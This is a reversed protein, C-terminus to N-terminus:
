QLGGTAPADGESKWNKFVHNQALFRQVNESPDRALLAILDPPLGPNAALWTRDLDTGQEAIERMLDVPCNPNMAFGVRNAEKNRYMELLVETPMRPNRALYENMTSYKGPTRLPLLIEVRTSSNYAVGWRVEEDRNAALRAIMSAPISPNSALLHLLATIPNGPLRHLVLSDGLHELSAAERATLPKREELRLILEPAVGQKELYARARTEYMPPTNCATLILTIAVISSKHPARFIWALIPFALICLTGYLGVLLRPTSLGRAIEPM